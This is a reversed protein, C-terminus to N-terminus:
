ELEIRLEKLKRGWFAHEDAVFRTFEARTREPPPESGDQVLLDLWKPNTLAQKADKEIKDLIADPMKAPAFLGHWGNMVMDIGQETLTPVDPLLNLRKDGTVALMKLKGAKVHGLGTEPPGFGMDITGGIVDLLAQSIGKYPVHTVKIGAAQTFWASNLHTASGIGVSFYTLKGPEKRALAVLEAVNNVPLKANVMLAYQNAITQCIPVLATLTDIMGKQLWPIVVINAFTAYLLTQGDPRAGAAARIGISGGAGARNDVITPQGTVAPMVQALGRANIDPGGGAAYGVVFTVPGIPWTQARAVSPLGFAASALTMARRRTITMCDEM